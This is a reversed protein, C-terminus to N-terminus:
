SQRSYAADLADAAAPNSQGRGMYVRQTMSPDAHGLLDAVKRASQGSDDLITAATKRFVHPNVWRYDIEWKDYIKQLAARWSRRVNNPQRWGLSQSPFVPEDPNAGDPRRLELLVVVFLPLDIIRNANETKGGHRQVGETHVHVLNGTVHLSRPPLTEGDVSIASDTLNLDQWRIAVAEGIRVGTGLMLRVIDPIQSHRFYPDTRVLTDICSLLETREEHTLSRVKKSGGEIPSLDGVPNSTILKRRIGYGLVGRIVKRIHRRYSASYGEEELEDFLDELLPADIENLRIGGIRPILFNNLTRRYNDYTTQARKVKVRKELWPAGLAEFTAAATLNAREDALGALFATLARKAKPESPGSREIPRTRGDRGRYNTVARWGTATQYTRITGHTGIQLPPRAM